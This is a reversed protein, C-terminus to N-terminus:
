PAIQWLNLANAYSIQLINNKASKEIILSCM